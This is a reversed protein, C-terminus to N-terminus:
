RENHIKNGTLRTNLCDIDLISLKINDGVGFGIIKLSAMHTERSIFVGFHCSLATKNGFRSM